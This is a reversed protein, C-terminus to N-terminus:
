PLRIDHHVRAARREDDSLEAEKVATVVTWHHGVPCHQFTFILELREDPFSTEETEPGDM